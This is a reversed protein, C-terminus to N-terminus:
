NLGGRQTRKHDKGYRVEDFHKQHILRTASEVATFKERAFATFVPPMSGCLYHTWGVGTDYYFDLYLRYIREHDHSFQHSKLEQHNADTAM